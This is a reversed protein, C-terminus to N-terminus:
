LKKLLDKALTLEKFQKEAQRFEHTHVCRRGGHHEVPFKLHLMEHFLVYEVALRPTQEQDLIRSLVIANHSPDYHGLNVKSAQRSWGLAPMAMLGHFYRFNLEDFLKELDHHRGRPGSLFKRGRIQRVLHLSRRMDGRNLYQRYRHNYEAPTERRFLKSLLIYALAEMVAVPAGELVDAIRVKLDGGELRIFSNANAFRCFTVRVRPVPTRPKLEAFVRRYIEEPTKVTAVPEAQM